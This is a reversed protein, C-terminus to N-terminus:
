KLRVTAGKAPVGADRPSYSAVSNDSESFLHLQKVGGPVVCPQEPKLAVILWYNQSKRTSAFPEREFLEGNSHYSSQELFQYLPNDSHAYSGTRLGYEENGAVWRVPVVKDGSKSRTFSSVGWASGNDMQDLLRRAAANVSTLSAAALATIQDILSAPGTIHRQRWCVESHPMLLKSAFQDCVEELAWYEATRNPNVAIGDEVIAHGLEHAVTFRERDSLESRGPEARYIVPHWRGNVLRLAGHRGRGVELIPQGLGFFQLLLEIQVPVEDDSRLSSELLASARALKAQFADDLRASLTSKM